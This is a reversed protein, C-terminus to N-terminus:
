KKWMENYGVQYKKLNNNLLDDWFWNIQGLLVEPISYTALEFQYDDTIFWIPFKCIRRYYLYCDLIRMDTNSFKTDTILDFILPKPEELIEFGVQWKVFPHNRGFNRLQRVARRRNIEATGNLKLCELEGIVTVPVVLIVKRNIMAELLTCQTRKHLLYRIMINSDLIVAFKPNACLQFRQYGYTDAPTQLRFKKINENRIKRKKEELNETFETEVKKQIYKELELKELDSIKNVMGKIKNAWENSISNADKLMMRNYQKKLNIENSEGIM